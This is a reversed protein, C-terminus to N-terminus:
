TENGHELLTALKIFARTAPSVQRQDLVALGVQRRAAPNLPKKQYSASQVQPLSLEALVTM